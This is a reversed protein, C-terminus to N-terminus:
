AVKVVFSFESKREIAYGATSLISEAKASINAMTEKSLESSMATFTYVHATVLVDEELYQVGFGTGRTSCVGRSRSVSQLMHNKKLVAAVKQTSVKLETNTM